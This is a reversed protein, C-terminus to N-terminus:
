VDCLHLHRRFKTKRGYRRSSFATKITDTRIGNEAAYVERDIFKMCKDPLNLNDMVDKFSFGVSDEDTNYWPIFWRVAKVRITQNPSALDRLARELIAALLHRYPDYSETDEEEMNQVCPAKM